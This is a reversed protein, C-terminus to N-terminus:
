TKDLSLAMRSIADLDVRIGDILKSDKSKLITQLMWALDHPITSAEPGAFVAEPSWGCGRVLKEYEDVTFNKAGSEVDYIWARSKRIKSALQPVSLGAARRLATLREGLM